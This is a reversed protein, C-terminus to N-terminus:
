QSNDPLKPIEEFISLFYLILLQNSDQGFGKRKMKLNQHIPSKMSWRCHHEAQAITLKGLYLERQKRRRSNSRITSLSSETSKLSSWSALKAIAWYNAVPGVASVHITNAILIVVASFLTYLMPKSKFLCLWIQTSLSQARLVVFTLHAFLLFCVM